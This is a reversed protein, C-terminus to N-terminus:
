VKFQEVTLSLGNANDKLREALSTVQTVLTSNNTAVGHIHKLSSAVEQGTKSQGGLDRAIESITIEVSDIEQTITQMAEAVQNAMAVGYNVKEVSKEMGELASGIGQQISVVTRTIESSSQATGESLKRVEDAVVSFGRGQDGARAAEIAANLALLNTQEAIAKISEAMKSIEKSQVGLTKVQQAAEGVAESIHTVDHVMENMLQWGNRSVDKTNKMFSATSETREGLAYTRELLLNISQDTATSLQNQLSTGTAIQHMIDSLNVAEQHTEEVSKQIGQVISALAEQMTGVSAQLQALESHGRVHIHGRLDNKAIKEVTEMTEKLPKIVITNILISLVVMLAFGALLGSLVINRASTAWVQTMEEHPYAAVIRFNWAKFPTQSLHYTDPQKSLIEDVSEKKQHSSHFKIRNKDDILAYFGMDFLHTKAFAQELLATNVPYGVYWIGIVQNKEDRIPEYGTIYSNGLIDVQGYFPDGRNVATIAMGKPDLITGVARKGEKMVNTTIRIFDDGQRVFLTATGGMINKTGDVLEYQNAQPTQGFYLDPVKKEAVQVLEGLHPTGKELTRAMLLKMSSQVREMMLSHTTELLQLLAATTQEQNALTEKETIEIERMTSIVTFLLTFGVIILGTLFLFQGRVTKLM